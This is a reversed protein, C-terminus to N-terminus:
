PSGHRVRLEQAGFSIERAHQRLFGVILRRKRPDLLMRKKELIHSVGARKAVERLTPTITEGTLMLIPLQHLRRVHTALTLGTMPEMNLDSILCDPVPSEDRLVELAEDGGPATVITPRLVPDDEKLIAEVIRQMWSAQDDVILVKVRKVMTEGQNPLGKLDLVRSLVDLRKLDLLNISSYFL